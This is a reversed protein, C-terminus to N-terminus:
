QTEFDIDNKVNGDNLSIKLGSSSTEYLREVANNNDNTLKVKYKNQSSRDIPSISVRDNKMSNDDITLQGPDEKNSKIVLKVKKHSPKSAFKDLDKEKLIELFLQRQENLLRDREKQEQEKWM